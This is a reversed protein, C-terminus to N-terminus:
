MLLDHHKSSDFKAGIVRKRYVSKKSFLHKRQDWIEGIYDHRDHKANFPPYKM